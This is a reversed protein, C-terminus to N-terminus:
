GGKFKFLPSSLGRGNDKDMQYGTITPTKIVLRDSLIAIPLESYHSYPTLGSSILPLIRGSM